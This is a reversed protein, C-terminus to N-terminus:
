KCFYRFYILFAKIFLLIESLIEKSIDNGLIFKDIHLHFSELSTSGRACRYTPLQVGGKTLVGTKTYLQVGEPDQICPIHQKQNDWIDWIRTKDLLPVGTTDCGQPGTFTLLLDYIMATTDVIGRTKRRCHLALERRTIKEITAAECPDAIGQSQLQGKKASKL